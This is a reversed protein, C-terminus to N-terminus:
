QNMGKAAKKDVLPLFVSYREPRAITEEILPNLNVNIEFAVCRRGLLRAVAPVTGSGAFPSLVLDGPSTFQELCHSVIGPHFADRFVFGRSDRRYTGGTLVWVDPAFAQTVKGRMSVPKGGSKQFFQIYAFGYRYINRTLSKVWIKTEVCRFGVNEAVERIACHKQWLLGDFHHDQRNYRAHDRLDTNACVFLGGPELVRLVECFVSKIFELYSLKDLTMGDPHNTFPPSGIAIQVSHNALEPMEESSHYYVAVTM